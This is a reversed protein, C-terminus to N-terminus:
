EAATLKCIDKAHGHKIKKVAYMSEDAASMLTHTMSNRDYFQVGVSAKLEIFQDKWRMTSNNLEEAIKHIRTEGDEWGSRVLLVAFEDGGLRAVYDMGRTMRELIRAVHCLVEDGCTHGFNDNIPKFDDLDIYALVGTEKFRRASALVRHLEAQFGRRNLIGTLSDTMALRELYTIRESQQNLIEELKYALQLAQQLAHERDAASAREDLCGALKCIGGVLQSVPPDTQKMNDFM